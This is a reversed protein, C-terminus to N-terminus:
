GTSSLHRPCRPSAREAGGHEPEPRRWEGREDDARQVVPEARVRDLVHEITDIENYVPIVISLKM